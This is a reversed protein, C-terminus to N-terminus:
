IHAFLAQKKSLFNGAQFLPLINWVFHAAQEQILQIARIFNKSKHLRKESDATALIVIDNKGIRQASDGTEVCLDTTVVGALGHEAVEPGGIAGEDVIM